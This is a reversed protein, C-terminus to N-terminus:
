APIPLPEQPTGDTQNDSNNETAISSGATRDSVTPEETGEQNEAADGGRSKNM